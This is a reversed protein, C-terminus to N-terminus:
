VQRQGRRNLAGALMQRLRGRERSNLWLVYGLSSGAVGSFVAVMGLRMSVPAQALARLLWGTLVYLLLAVPMGRGIVQLVFTIFSQRIMRCTSLPVLWGAVLLDGLLLGYVVGTIGFRPILLYGLGLGGIGSVVYALSLNQLNNAAALLVSSTMWLMRALLLLLFADMLRANYVIEGQTWLQVLPAGLFHLFIAATLGVGLLVKVALLHVERLTEYRGQAELTTIEPWLAASFTNTIQWTLNSLTRLTVFAAVSAAGLKASVLLTSGQVSFGTALQILFFLSSPALFSLALRLDRHQLGLHVQPHRRGLDWAIFFVAAFLPLIQVAAVGVIGGGLVVVLATLALMALRQVNGVMVGRSYEGVTRYIGAILGAPIAAVLQLMLLVGVLAATSRPTIILSFWQDLPVAYLAVTFGVGAISFVALTLVLASHLITTYEQLAGRTYAQNLRNVVYTQMGFDLVSVYAVAASLTLWEGYLQNGWYALFLPVLGLQGFTNILQSLLNAASGSAFRRTRGGM